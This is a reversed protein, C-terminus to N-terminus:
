SSGVWSQWTGAPNMGNSVLTQSFSTSCVTATLNAQTLTNTKYGEQTMTFIAGSKSKAILTYTQYADIGTTGVCYIFNYAITTDYASKTAKIESTGLDTTTSPFNSPVARVRAGELLGAINDLDSRVAADQARAQTGRYSVITVAALISIITIVVVLEILTFGNLKKHSLINNM